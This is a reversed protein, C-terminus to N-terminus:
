STFNEATKTYSLLELSDADFELQYITDYDSEPWTDLESSDVGLAETLPNINNHEWAVVITDVTKLNEKMADAAGQNGGLVERYGYDFVIPLSTAESLPTVTEKCRECDIPDDYQCAYIAEPLLFKDGNYVAAALNEARAQGQDNLCGLSWKKEGHRNIYITKPNSTSSLSSSTTAEGELPFRTFLVNWGHTDECWVRWPLPKECSGWLVGGLQSGDEDIGVAGQVLSSYDTMKDALLLEKPWSVGGDYSFRITLKSRSYQMAPNSFMVLGEDEDTGHVGDVRALSAECIPDILAEDFYIEGFTVGGDYSLAVARLRQDMDANRMNLMIAGTNGIEVVTDEDMLPLPTTTVTWTKGGDDSWYVIDAGYERYATGYHGPMVLRGKFDGNKIQIGTGPGPLVGVFDGLFENINRPESWTKGDDFSVVEWNSNGPVCDGNGNVGRVFHLIIKSEAEDYVVVINGGVNSTPDNPDTPTNDVVWRAEDEWTLGGDFSRRHAIGLVSCDACEFHDQEGFRAEAFAHITKTQPHQLVAPIRYCGPNVGETQVDRDFVTSPPYYYDGKEPHLLGSLFCGEHLCEKGAAVGDKIYERVSKGANIQALVGFICTVFIQM